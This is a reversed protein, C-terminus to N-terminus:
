FDPVSFYREGDAQGSALGYSNPIGECKADVEVKEIHIRIPSRTSLSSFRLYPLANLRQRKEEIAALEEESYPGHRGVGTERRKERRNARSPLAKAKIGRFVAYGHSVPVETIRRVKVFEDVGDQEIHDHLTGLLATNSSFVRVTRGPSVGELGPFGLAYEGARGACHLRQAVTSIIVPVAVETGARAEIDFYHTFSPM